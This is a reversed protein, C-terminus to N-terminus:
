ELNEGLVYMYLYSPFYKIKGAWNALSTSHMLQMEPSSLLVRACHTDQYSMLGDSSSAGAKFIQRINLVEENVNSEPGSQSPIETDSLIRVVPWVNIM